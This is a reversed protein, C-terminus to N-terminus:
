VINWYAEYRINGTGTYIRVDEPRTDEPVVYVLYGDWANSRGARMYGLPEVAPKGHDVYTRLYGYPKINEVHRLDWVDDFERLRIEPLLDGSITRMTTGDWVQWSEPQIGWMTASGDDTYVHAYVFLYKMGDPAAQVFYKGWSHSYWNVEKYESYGYITAHVKIDKYGSVNDRRFSLFQGPRMGVIEPAPEPTPTPAITPEPTPTPTPPPATIEAYLQKSATVCGATCAFLIILALIGLLMLLAALKIGSANRREKIYDTYDNTM